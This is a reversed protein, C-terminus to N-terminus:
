LRTRVGAGALYFVIPTGPYGGISPVVVVRGGLVLGARGQWKTMEFGGEFQPRTSITDGSFNSNFDRVTLGAGALFDITDFVRMPTSARVLGVAHFHEVSNLYDDKYHYPRFVRGAWAIEAEVAMRNSRVVGITGIVTPVSEIASAGTGVKGHMAGVGVVVGVYKSQPTATVQADAAQGYGLVVVFVAGVIKSVLHQRGM